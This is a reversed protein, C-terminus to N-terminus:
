DCRRNLQNTRYLLPSDAFDRFDSLSYAIRLKQPLKHLIFTQNKERKIQSKLSPSRANKGMM